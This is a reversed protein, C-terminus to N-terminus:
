QPLPVASYGEKMFEENTLFCRDGSGSKVDWDGAKAVIQGGATINGTIQEADVVVTKQYKAM